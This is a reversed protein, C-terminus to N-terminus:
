SLLGFYRVSKLLNQHDDQRWVLITRLWTRSTIVGVLSSIPEM